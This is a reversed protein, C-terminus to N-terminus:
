LKNLNKKSKTLQVEVIRVKLMTSKELQKERAIENVKKSCEAQKKKDKNESRCQLQM